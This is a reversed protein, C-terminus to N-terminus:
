PKPEQAILAELIAILWARAPTEAHGNHSKNGASITFSAGLGSNIGAYIMKIDPLVADHLAKAADLSGHYASITNHVRKASGLGILGRNPFSCDWNGAKVKDRLATLAELKDM